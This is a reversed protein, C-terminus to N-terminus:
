MKQPEFIATTAGAPDTFIALRGVNPIDMPPCCATAGMKLAEGFTDDVKDVLLYYLWHPPVNEFQPGDMKMMGGVKADGSLFITYTGIPGMDMKQTTWGVLSTYFTEARATDRTLLENWAVAGKEPSPGRDASQFISVTAGTPDNIVAFRGVHPIDTPPVCVSGGLQPVRAAAQDVDKVCVYGMWHPPVGNWMPGSTDMMGGFSVGQRSLDCYTCPGMPQDRCTWGLLSSYFKKAEPVKPVNLEHWCFLGYATTAPAATPTM